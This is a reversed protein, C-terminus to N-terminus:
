QVVVFFSFFIFGPQKTQRLVATFVVEKDKQLEKSAFELDLLNLKNVTSYFSDQIRENM